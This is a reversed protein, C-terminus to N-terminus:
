DPKREKGDNVKLASAVLISDGVGCFICPSVTGVRASLALKALVLGEVVDVDVVTGRGGVVRSPVVTGRRACCPAERSM